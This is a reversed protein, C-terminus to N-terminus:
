ISIKYFKSPKGNQCFLGINNQTWGDYNMPVWESTKGATCSATVCDGSSHCKRDGPGAPNFAYGAVCKKPM